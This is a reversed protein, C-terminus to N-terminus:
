NLRAELAQLAPLSMILKEHKLLDYVNAYGHSSAKVKYLNKAATHLNADIGRLILPPEWKEGTFHQPPDQTAHDLLLAATGHRGGINYKKLVRALVKTKFTPMALTGVLLLNGEKLKQSLAMKLGLVSVKKNLKTTYDQVSGRPPHAVAGGRWHPPRAHGARARGTGKQPRVKRTSGRVEHIGKAKAKRRGRKKNRQYVVVRHLIDTRIPDQGFVSQSLHISGIESSSVFDVIPVHLREPLPKAYRVNKASNSKVDYWITDSGTDSGRLGDNKGIIEEKQAKRAGYFPSSKSRPDIKLNKPLAVYRDDM